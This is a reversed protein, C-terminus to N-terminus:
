RRGPVVLPDVVINWERSPHEDMLKRWWSRGVARRVMAPSPKSSISRPARGPTQSWTGYSSVSVGDCGHGTVYNCRAQPHAGDVPVDAVKICHEVGAPLSLPVTVKIGQEGEGGGRPGLCQDKGATRQAVLRDPAELLVQVGDGGLQDPGPLARRLEADLEPRLGQVEQPEAPVQFAGFQQGAKAPEPTPITM